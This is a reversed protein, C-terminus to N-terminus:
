KKQKWEPISASKREFITVSRLGKINEEPAVSHHRMDFITEAIDWVDKEEHPWNKGYRNLNILPSYGRM